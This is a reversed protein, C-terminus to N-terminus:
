ASLRHGNPSDKSYGLRPCQRFSADKPSADEVFVVGGIRNISHANTVSLRGDVGPTASFMFTQPGEAASVATIGAKALWGPRFSIPDDAGLAPSVTAVAALLCTFISLLRQAIEM